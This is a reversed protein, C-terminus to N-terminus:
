TSLNPNSSPPRDNHISLLLPQALPLACIASHSCGVGCIPHGGFLDQHIRVRRSKEQLDPKISEPHKISSVWMWNECPGGTHFSKVNLFVRKQCRWCLFCFSEFKKCMVNLLLYSDAQYYVHLVSVSKTSAKPSNVFNVSFWKFYGWNTFVSFFSIELTTFWSREQSEYNVNM